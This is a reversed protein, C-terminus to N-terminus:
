AARAAALAAALDAPLESRFSWRRAASRTPSPSGTPTCSSASSATADRRRRLDRRRDASPRDRRLPRPDPAHPRDGPAGGPLDRRRAARAGRLPHPGPALRRRLGGDPPAPALRPRDARRDDRHALRPPRRGPGPLRARGRAAAGAGAARRPDRRRPRRRAPRQDGQRPPPRDRPARPRRRRRPDGGLEDVLTPGRHSPAPHVVLGAPKDVVALAEDLHVIRLEASMPERRARPLDPRARPRRATIAVDALNFPPWSLLDIYDTVAGARVRDALNGLAGGALLGAAVWMGPRTPNRAFLFGVFVLAVLTLAVLARAAAAPSASPSAATTPSPSGLPGLM